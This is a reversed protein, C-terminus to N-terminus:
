DQNLHMGGFFCLYVGAKDRLVENRHTTWLDLSVLRHQKTAYRLLSVLPALKMWVRELGEGNSKGWGENLRPNFELQCGWNHAYAHFLATGMKVQAAQTPGTFVRTQNTLYKLM